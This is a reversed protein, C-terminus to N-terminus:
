RVALGYATVPRNTRLVQWRVHPFAEQLATAVEDADEAESDVALLGSTTTTTILATTATELAERATRALAVLGDAGIALWEGVRVAGLETHTDRVARQVKVVRITRAVEDLRRAAEAADGDLQGRLADLALLGALMDAPVLAGPHASHDLAREAAPVVDRDGALLVVPGDCADIVRLLEGTSPKATAGGTVVRHAGAELYAAVLGDGEAVAVVAVAGDAHGEPHLGAEGAVQEVLDTVEVETVEGAERAAALAAVVEDTHVHCRWAGEGGALAVTDGLAVWRERLTAVRDEDSGLLCIVEYRGGHGETDDSVAGPLGAAALVPAALEIPPRHVGAVVEALADLFLVYGLGGADVVGARALVPLLDPTRALSRRGEDAAERVADELTGYAAATRVQRAVDDAVTLITGEAPDAVASRAAKAAAVLATALGEPDCPDPVTAVFTRLAQGMIVGSSGRGGLLAGRGIAATVEARDTSDPLHALVTDLTAVLNDGTDGDPVPYVNLRNLEARHRALREAFARMMAALTAADLAHTGGAEHSGTSGMRESGYREATM